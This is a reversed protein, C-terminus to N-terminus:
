IPRWVFCTRRLNFYVLFAPYFGGKKIKQVDAEWLPNDDPCHTTSWAIKNMTESTPHINCKCINCIDYGPIWGNGEGFKPCQKCINYIELMRGKPRVPKGADEWKKKEELYRKIM